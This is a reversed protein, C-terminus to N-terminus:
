RVEATGDALRDLIKSGLDLSWVLRVSGCPQTRTRNSRAGMSMSNSWSTWSLKAWDGAAIVERWATLLESVTVGVARVSPFYGFDFPFSM